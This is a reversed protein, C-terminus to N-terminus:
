AEREPRRREEKKECVSAKMNIWNDMNNINRGLEIEHVDAGEKRGCIGRGKEKERKRERGREM